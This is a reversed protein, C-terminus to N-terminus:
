IKAKFDFLLLTMYLKIETESKPARAHDSFNM